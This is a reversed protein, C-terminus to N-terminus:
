PGPVILLARNLAEIIGMQAEIGSLADAEVAVACDKSVKAKLGPVERASTIVVECSGDPSKKYHYTAQGPGARQSGDQSFSACGGMAAAVLLLVVLRMKM